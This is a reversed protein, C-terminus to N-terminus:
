VSEKKLEGVNLSTTHGRIISPFLGAPCKISHVLLKSSAKRKGAELGRGGVYSGWSLMLINDIGKREGHIVRHGGGGPKGM